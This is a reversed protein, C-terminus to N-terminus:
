RFLEQPGHNQIMECGWCTSSEAHGHVPTLARRQAAAALAGARLVLPYTAIQRRLSAELVLLAYAIPDPRPPADGALDALRPLDARRHGLRDRLALGVGVPVGAAGAHANTHTHTLLVQYVEAHWPDAFDSGALWGRVGTAAGPKWLLSGLTAAEPTPSV